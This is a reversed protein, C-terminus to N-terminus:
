ILIIYRSPSTLWFGAFLRCSKYLKTLCYYQIIPSFPTSNHYFLLSSTDSSLSPNKSRSQRQKLRKVKHFMPGASVKWSM